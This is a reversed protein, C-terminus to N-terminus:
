QRQWVSSPQTPNEHNNILEHLSIVQDNLTIKDVLKGITLEGKIVLEITTM